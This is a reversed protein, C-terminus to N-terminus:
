NRRREVSDRYIAIAKKLQKNSKLDDKELVTNTLSIHLTNKKKPRELPRQKGDCVYVFREEEKVIVM